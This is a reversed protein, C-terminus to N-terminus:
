PLPPEAEFLLLVALVRAPRSQPYLHEKRYRAPNWSQLPRGALPYHDPLVRHLGAAAQALGTRLHIGWDSNSLPPDSLGGGDATYPDSHSASPPM